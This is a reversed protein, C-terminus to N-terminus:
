IFFPHEGPPPEYLNITINLPWVYAHMSRTDRYEVIPIDPIPDYRPRPNDGHACFPSNEHPPMNSKDLRNRYVEFAITTPFVSPDFMQKICTQCSVHYNDRHATCERRPDYRIMLDGCKIADIMQLLEFVDLVTYYLENYYYLLKMLYAYGKYDIPTSGLRDVAKQFIDRVHVQCNCKRKTTKRLRSVHDRVRLYWDHMRAWHCWLIHRSNRYNHPISSSTTSSGRQFFEAYYQNIQAVSLHEKPRPKGRAFVQCEYCPMTDSDTIRKLELDYYQSPNANIGKVPVKVRLDQNLAACVAKDHPTISAVDSEDPYWYYQEDINPGNKYYGELTQLIEHKDAFQCIDAIINCGKCPYLAPIEENLAPCNYNKRLFCVSLWTMTHDSNFLGSKILAIIADNSTNDCHISTNSVIDLIAPQAGKIHKLDWLKQRWLDRESKCSPCDSKFNPAALTFKQYFGDEKLHCEDDHPTSYIIGISKAAAIISHNSFGMRGNLAYDTIIYIYLLSHLREISEDNNNLLNTFTDRTVACGACSTQAPDIKTAPNVFKIQNKLHPFVDEIQALSCLPNHRRIYNFTLGYNPFPDRNVAIHDCEWCM